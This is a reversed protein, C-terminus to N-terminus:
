VFLISCVTAKAIFECVIYGHFLTFCFRKGELGRFGYQAEFLELMNINQVYKEKCGYTGGFVDQQHRISHAMMDRIEGLGKVNKRLSPLARELLIFEFRRLLKDTDDSEPDILAKKHADRIM